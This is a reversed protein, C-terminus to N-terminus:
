KMKWFFSLCWILVLTPCNKVRMFFESASNAVVSGNFFGELFLKPPGRATGGSTQWFIIDISILFVPARFKATWFISKQPGLKPPDRPTVLFFKPLCFQTQLEVIKCLFQIKINQPQPSSRVFNLFFFFFFFSEDRGFTPQYPHFPIKLCTVM